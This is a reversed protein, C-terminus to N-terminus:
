LLHTRPIPKIVGDLFNRPVTRTNIMQTFLTALIPALQQRFAYYIPLRIGDQGPAACKNMQKLAKMVESPTIADSSTYESFISKDSEPILALIADQM